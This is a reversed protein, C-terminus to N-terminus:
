ELLRPSKARTARLAVRLQALVHTTRAGSFGWSEPRVELVAIGGVIWNRLSDQVCDLVEAIAEVDDNMAPIVPTQEKGSRECPFIAKQSRANKSMQTTIRRSVSGYDLGSEPPSPLALRKVDGSGNAVYDDHMAGFM